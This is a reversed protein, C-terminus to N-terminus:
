AGMANTERIPAGTRGENKHGVASFNGLSKGRTVFRKSFFFHLPQKRAVDVVEGMLAKNRQGIRSGKDNAGGNIDM